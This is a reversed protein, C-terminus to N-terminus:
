LRDARACACLIQAFYAEHKPNDIDVAQQKQERKEKTKQCARRL